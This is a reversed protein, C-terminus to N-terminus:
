LQIGGVLVIGNCINERLDKHVEKLAAYFNLNIKRELMKEFKELNVEKEKMGIIAVDMDSVTTDDGRSFSGFLIITAGPFEEELFDAVGTEYILKLNEVRKLQMAKKNDRNLTIINLNMTGQSEKVILGTKELDLVSTGVATGSVNLFKAIQRQNLKEGAKIGLLRLIEEQMLTFKIKYIDM